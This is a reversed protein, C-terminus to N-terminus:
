QRRNMKLGMVCHANADFGRSQHNQPDDNRAGRPAHRNAPTGRVRPPRCPVGHPGEWPTTEGAFRSKASPVAPHLNTSGPPLRCCSRGSRQPAGIASPVRNLNRDRGASRRRRNPLVAEDPLGRQRLVPRAGSGGSSSEPWRWGQTRRSAATRANRAGRFPTYLARRRLSKSSCDTRAANRLAFSSKALRM